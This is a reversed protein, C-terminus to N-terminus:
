NTPIKTGRLSLTRSAYTIVHEMDDDQKQYLVAGLVMRVLMQICNLLNKTIQM